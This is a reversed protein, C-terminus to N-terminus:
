IVGEELPQRLVALVHRRFEPLEYLCLVDHPALSGDGTRPIEGGGTRWTDSLAHHPARCPRTPVLATHGGTRGAVRHIRMAELAEPLTMAPLITALRRTLM